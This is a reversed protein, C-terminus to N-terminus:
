LGEIFMPDTEKKEDESVSWDWWRNPHWVVPMLKENNKKVAIRKEFKTHQVLLRAHTTDPDYEDFNSDIFNTCNLDINLVGM